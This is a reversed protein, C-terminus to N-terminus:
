SCTGSPVAQNSVVDNPASVLVVGIGPATHDPPLIGRWTFIYTATTQGPAVNLSIPLGTGRGNTTSDTFVITGGPGGVTIHFTATYTETFSTGCAHGTLPPSAVVNVSTVTFVAGGTCVGTPVAESSRVDNPSSVLVIGVGPATHDAPLSGQWTFTYTATTQGPAVNLNINPSNGRGNNTTDTFVITGGPGGAAIHFTATYTETFSTGCAHGTLPPSAVVDVSTVTFASNPSATCAGTPGVLASTLQSPSTVQVGGQAPMTHDAPLSGSWVFQYQMSTTGAPVSLSAPTAGRGNNTTYTFQVQGGAHNAPFHFTATYTVTLSTGCTYGNLSQPSLAMDVELVQLPVTGGPPSSTPNGSTGGGNGNAGCAVLSMLLLTGILLLSLTRVRCVHKMVMNKM